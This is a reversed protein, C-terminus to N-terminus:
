SNLRVSTNLNEYYYLGYNYQEMRWLEMTVYTAVELICLEGSSLWNTAYITVRKNDDDWVYM